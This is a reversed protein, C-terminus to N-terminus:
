PEEVELFDWGEEDNTLRIVIKGKPIKLKLM